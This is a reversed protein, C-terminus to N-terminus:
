GNPEIPTERLFGSFNAQDDALNLCVQRPTIYEELGHERILSDPLPLRELARPEVKISNGGYSKGVKRLNQITDPHSLVKWLKDVFGESSHKPYICLLCTLPVVGAPNRIFRANRRGLYAFMIPPTKRTEMRFWPNRTKLLTKRPLGQEEGYLIYKQVGPPLHDFSISNITLLWTPRGDSDLKEIDQKTLYEGKVDRTRGIARVLLSKPINLEKVRKSTMFFFNNDGSVIGRMVSAFDGLTFNHKEKTSPPRSFGTSLAETLSRTHVELTNYSARPDPRDHEILSILEASERCSCKAWIFENAPKENSIMIVVANTDVEPFPAAEPAFTVIGYLRFRSCIWRWLTDAFVGEFIDASVIFALRGCPATVQLSRILFYVHLGARGDIKLGTATVAFDRLSRKIESPLRHHRIYPPNAVIAPFGDTPPDLVFDRIEVNTLDSDTLGSSRAKPLVSPDVDRGYLCLRFDHKEAFRKAARFFAGEGVCPDLIKPPKDKLVYAVMFDAVWDPTWFQGKVRLAERGAGSRPLSTRQQVSPRHM